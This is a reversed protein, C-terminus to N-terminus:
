KSPLLRLTVVRRGNKVEDAVVEFRSGRPLLLEGEGGHSSLHGTRMVRSGAPLEVLVSTDGHFPATPSTSMFGKDTWTKGVRSGVPGFIDEGNRVGRQTRIEYRTPEVKGFADDMGAVLGRADAPDIFEEPLDDFQQGRLENNLPGFYDGTYQRIAQGEPSDRGIDMEAPKVLRLAADGTFIPIDASSTGTPLSSPARDFPPPGVPKAAELQSVHAIAEEKSDFRKATFGGAGSAWWGTDDGGLFNAPYISGREEGHVLVTTTPPTGAVLEVGDPLGPAGGGPKDSFKGRRDRPHEAEDWHVAKGETGTRPAQRLAALQDLIPQARRWYEAEAEAAASEDVDGHEAAWADRVQELEDLLVDRRTPTTM